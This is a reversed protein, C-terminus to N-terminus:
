KESHKIHTRVPTIKNNETRPTSRRETGGMGWLLEIKLQQCLEVEPTNGDFRHGGNAFYTPRIRKLAECVTGDSDDVSDVLIVGKISNLIEKRQEFSMFVFGRERFLWEDSNAVVIVSGYQSAESIM